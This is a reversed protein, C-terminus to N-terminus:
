AATEAPETAPEVAPAELRERLRAPSLGLELAGRRAVSVRRTEESVVIALADSEETAGLAARHRTGLAQSLNPNESLPLLCGAAVIRDGRVLVAGDHLPADKQFISVLLAASLRADVKTAGEALGGLRDGSEVLIIAGLGRMSLTFAAEVIEEALTRRQRRVFGRLVPSEGLSVLAQRIEPQFVVILAFVLGGFGREAIWRLRALEFNVVLAFFAFGATAVVVVLGKLVASGRTEQLFRIFAYILAALVLTETATRLAEVPEPWAWTM